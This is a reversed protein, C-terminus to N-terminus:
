PLTEVPTVPISTLQRGLKLSTTKQLEQLNLIEDGTPNRWVQSGDDNIEVVSYPANHTFSNLLNIAVHAVFDVCEELTNKTVYEGNEPNIIKYVTEM